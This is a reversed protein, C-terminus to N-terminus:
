WVCSMPQIYSSNLYTKVGQNTSTGAMIVREWTQKIVM